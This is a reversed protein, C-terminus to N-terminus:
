RLLFFGGRLIAKKLNGIPIKIHLFYGFQFQSHPHPPNSLTEKQIMIDCLSQLSLLSPALLNENGNVQSVVV